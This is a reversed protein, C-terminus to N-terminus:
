RKLNYNVIEISNLKCIEIIYDQLYKINDIHKKQGEISYKRMRKPVGKERNRMNIFCIKKSLSLSILKKPKGYIFLLEKLFEKSIYSEQSVFVTSLKHFYGEDIFLYENNELVINSLEYIFIVDYFMNLLNRKEDDSIPMNRIIINIKSDFNFYKQKFRNVVNFRFIKSKYIIKLFWNKYPLLNLFQYKTLVYKKKVEDSDYCIINELLLQKKLQKFCTTKGSGPLGIM